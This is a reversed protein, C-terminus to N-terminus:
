TDDDKLGEQRVGDGQDDRLSCVVLPGWAFAQAMTVVLM